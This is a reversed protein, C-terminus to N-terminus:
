PALLFQLVEASRARWAIENHPADPYKKSIVNKNFKWGPQKQLAKNFALQHPEYWADLTATGYDMWLKHNGSRPLKQSLYRRYPGSFATDNITLSIPWHTSLCAAGGFIMPYQTLAYSSILGGMSSGMILTNEPEGSTAFHGDIFPKLELSLWALYEDSLPKTGREKSLKELLAPSLATLAPSPLYESFRQPSNWVGVIMVPKIKGSDILKQAAQHLLWSEGGYASQPDFLNQGDQAYVVALRANKELNKPLWVDVKRGALSGCADFEFRHIQHGDALNVLSRHPISVLTSVQAHSQQFLLCVLLFFFTRMTEFIAKEYKAVLELYLCYEAVRFSPEILVISNKSVEM